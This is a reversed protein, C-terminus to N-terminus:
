DKTSDKGFWKIAEQIDTDKSYSLFYRSELKFLYTAFENKLQNKIRQVTIGEIEEPIDISNNKQSYHIFDLYIKESIKYSNDYDEVKSYNFNNSNNYFYDFCFNRFATSYYLSSYYLSYQSSDLPVFIDPFVGGGGYVIKGKPTIYKEENIFSTSDLTYMEGSEYRSMLENDYDEGVGYPKQICRGTPTYYRSITLRLESNDALKIPQQVLGKGFTRRGIITGRANDQVAGSVIESASASGSNVLIVLDGSEYEGNNSAFHNQRKQHLGDTYVILEKKQLFEDAVSIAGHLYGGTNSRLDLILKKMGLEKLSILAEHFEVSTKDSFSTLKIYGINKELILSADISPLPILGRVIATSKKVKRIPNYTTLNVTSGYEGKLLKFVDENTIGVGAINDGDVTIIRNGSVLGAKQSPGGNIVNAVMLTDRLIIFRIGVGGFHGQLGENAIGVDDKSIYVSHPDLNSLMGVISNEILESKDVSDVYNNEIVNIIHNIKNTDIAKNSSNINSNFIGILYALATFFCLLLPFYTSSSKKTM